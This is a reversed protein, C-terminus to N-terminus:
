GEDSDESERLDDMAICQLRCDAAILRLSGPSSAPWKRASSRGSSTPSKTAVQRRFRQWRTRFSSPRIVTAQGVPLYTWSSCARPLHPEYARWASADHQYTRPGCSPLGDRHGSPREIARWATPDHTPIVLAAPNQQTYDRLQLLTRRAASDDDTLLPLRQEHISRTTYAADGVLM